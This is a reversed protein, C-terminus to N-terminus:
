EKITERDTRQKKEWEWYEQIEVNQEKGTQYDKITVFDIDQDTFRIDKKGCKPCEKTDFNGHFTILYVPIETKEVFHDYAKKETRTVRDSSTKYDLIARIPKSSDFEILTFDLDTGYANKPGFEKHWKKFADRTPSGKLEKKWKKM